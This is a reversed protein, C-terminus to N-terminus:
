VAELIEDDLNQAEDIVVVFKRGAQAEKILLDRLQSQLDVLNNSAPVADLDALLSRLFENANAHMQVLFASRTSPGFGELMHLLMTTKGLGPAAILAMFGRGTQIGYLLSALAEQQAPGMYLFRPDPTVGFPQEALGYFEFFMPLRELAENASFLVGWLRND